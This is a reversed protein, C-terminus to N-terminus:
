INVMALWCAHKEFIFNIEIFCFLTVTGSFYQVYLLKHWVSITASQVPPMSVPTSRYFLVARLANIMMSMRIDWFSNLLYVM